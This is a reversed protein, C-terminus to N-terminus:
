DFQKKADETLDVHMALPKRLKYLLEFTNNINRLKKM